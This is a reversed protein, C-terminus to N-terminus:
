AAPPLEEGRDPWLEIVTARLQELQGRAVTLERRADALAVVTPQPSDAPDHAATQKLRAAASALRDALEPTQPM